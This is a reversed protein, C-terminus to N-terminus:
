YYHHNHNKYFASTILMVVNYMNLTIELHLDDDSIIKIQTYKDYYIDSTNSKVMLIYRIRDSIRKKVDSHFLSLYKTESYRRIYRDVKDFNYTFTKCRISNQIGCWVNFKKKKEHLKEDLLINQLDFDNISLSGDFYFCICNKIDVNKLLNNSKM